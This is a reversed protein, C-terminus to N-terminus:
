PHHCLQSSIIANGRCLSPLDPPLLIIYSGTSSTKNLCNLILNSAAPRLQQRHLKCLLPSLKTKSALSLMCCRRPRTSPQMVPTWQQTGHEQLSMRQPKRRSTSPLVKSFNPLLVRSQAQIMSNLFFTNSRHISLLCDM